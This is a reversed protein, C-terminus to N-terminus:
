VIYGSWDGLGALDRQLRDCAARGAAVSELAGAPRHVVIPLRCGAVRAAVDAPDRTEVVALQCWPATHVLEGAAIRQALVLNHAWNGLLPLEVTRAPLVVIGVAAWRALRRLEAVHSGTLEAVLLVGVRSAQQCLSDHPNRALLATNSERWSDLESGAVEDRDVARLVWRKADYILKGGAAGLTRIGFDRQATAVVSSGNRLEVHARYLHPMEPTWFCPEPVIAKAVLADGPGRDIFQSTAPLTDAYLCNPGILRGGLTLGAAHARQPLRAYVYAMADSAGGFFIEVSAAFDSTERLHENDKMM